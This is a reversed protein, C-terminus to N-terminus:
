FPSLANHPRILGKAVKKLCCTCVWSTGLCLCALWGGTTIALAGSGCVLDALNRSCALPDLIISFSPIELSDRLTAAEEISEGTRADIPLELYISKEPGLGSVLSITECSSKQNGRTRAGGGQGLNPVVAPASGTSNKCVPWLALKHLAVGLGALDLKLTNPFHCSQNNERYRM